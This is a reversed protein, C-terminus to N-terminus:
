QRIEKRENDTLWFLTSYHDSKADRNKFPGLKEGELCGPCLSYHVSRHHMPKNQCGRMICTPAYPKSLPHPSQKRRYDTLFRAMGSM